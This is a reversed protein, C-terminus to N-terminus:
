LKRVEQLLTQWKRAWTLLDTNSIRRNTTPSRLLQTLEAPSRGTQQVWAEVLTQPELPVQELGLLAQLQQQEAKGVVDIVFKHCAATQLVGALAQIYADSNDVVPPDPTIPSGWRRNQAWILVLLLVGAQLLAPFVPTQALYASWSQATKDTKVEPNRYGHIYEDVLISNGNNSVLQALYDYNNPYDQYANAALHLTTAFIAKGQGIQEQWVVAGFRDGLLQKKKSLSQRRRTDIKISGAPSHQLTSFNAATVPSQVGLVVLTNGQKVWEQQEQDLRPQSLSSNIQLLTTPRTSKLKLLDSLPQQWRQIPVRQQMLAYWAGYGYPARSYTSGAPLQSTNPAAILTLLLIVAIAIAALWLMRNSKM